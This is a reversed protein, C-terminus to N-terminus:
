KIETAKTPEPCCGTFQQLVQEMRAVKSKLDNLETAQTEITKQQEKIAQIAVAAMNGYGVALYGNETTIVAEPFQKQIEQAIFGLQREAPRVQIDNYSFYVPQISELKALVNTMPVIDKKLRADSTSYVGAINMNGNKYLTMANSPTGAVGNGAVLLPETAVWSNTTGAIVNYRGLTLEKYAQATTHDGFAASYDGSALNNDGFATSATGSATNDSGGAFSSTGISANDWQAATVVGARFANKAPVWMMRTGAGSTPTAGTTGTVLMSGNNVHLKALPTTTNIALTGYTYVTNAAISLLGDGNNLLRVNWDSLIGNYHFDIYPTGTGAHSNDGGLELSGGQDNYLHAFNTGWYVNTATADGNVELKTTPTTTGIGVNATSPNTVLNSGSTTWGAQASAAITTAIMGLACASMLTSLGHSNM